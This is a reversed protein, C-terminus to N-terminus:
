QYQIIPDIPFREPCSNWHEAMRLMFFNKKKSLHFKKHKLKHGKNRTRDSPVVSSLRAGDESVWRQSM